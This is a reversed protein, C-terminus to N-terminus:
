ASMNFPFYLNITTGKNHESEIELIGNQKEVLKKAISLGFGTGKENETGSTSANKEKEFLNYLSDNCMGIGKDEIAIRVQGGIKESKVIIDSGRHSFKIANAILNRMVTEMMAPNITVKLDRPLKNILSIEKNKRKLDSFAFVKDVIVSIEKTELLVQSQKKYINGWALLDELLNNGKDAAEKIMSKIDDREQDNDVEDVMDILSRLQYFPTRLDHGIIRFLDDKSQNMEKLEENKISILRNAEKVKRSLQVLMRQCFYAMLGGGSVIVGYFGFKEIPFKPYFFMCLGIFVFNVALLFIIHRFHVLMGVAFFLLSVIVEVKLFFPEFQFNPDQVGYFITSMMGLVIAYVSLTLLRSKRIMSSKQFLLGTTVIIFTLAARNFYFGFGGENYEVIGDLIIGPLVIFMVTFLVKDFRFLKSSKHPKKSVEM